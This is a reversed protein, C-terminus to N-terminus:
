CFESESGATLHQCVMWSVRMAEDKFIVRFHHELVQKARVQKLWPHSVRRREGARLRRAFCTPNGTSQALQEASGLLWYWM